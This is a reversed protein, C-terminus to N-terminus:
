NFMAAAVLSIGGGGGGSGLARGVAFALAIGRGDEAASGGRAGASALAWGRGDAAAGRAMRTAPDFAAEGTPGRVTSTGRDLDGLVVLLAGFSGTGSGVPGGGGGTLYM